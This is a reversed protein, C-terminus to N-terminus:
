ILRVNKKQHWQITSAHKLESSFSSVLLDLRVTLNWMTQTSNMMGNTM